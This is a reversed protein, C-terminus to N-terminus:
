SPSVAASITPVTPRVESALGPNSGSRSASSLTKRFLRANGEQAVTGNSDPCGVVFQDTYEDVGLAAGCHGGITAPAGPFYEDLLNYGTLFAPEFISVSGVRGVGNDRGTAGVYVYNADVGVSTGFVDLFNPITRPWRASKM